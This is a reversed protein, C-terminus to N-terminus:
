QLSANSVSIPQGPLIHALACKHGFRCSGKLFWQCIAKGQGEGPTIHAFPCANGASCGNSRFFKCPVQSLAEKKKTSLKASSLVSASGEQIEDGSDQAVSLGPSVLDLINRTMAQLPQKLTLTLICRQNFLALIKGRLFDDYKRWLTKCSHSEGCLVGGLRGLVVVLNPGGRGIM